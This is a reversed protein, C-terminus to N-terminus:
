EKGGTFRNTKAANYLYKKGKLTIHYVMGRFDGYMMFKKVYGHFVLVNITSRFTQVGINLNNAGTKTDTPSLVAKLYKIKTEKTM